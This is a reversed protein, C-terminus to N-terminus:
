NFGNVCALLLWTRSAADYMFGLVDTQGPATSLPPMPLDDTFAYADGWNLTASGTAGQTIQIIILQGDAPNAPNGMTRSAALTVRFDNGLSADVSITPADTLEVVAPAVGGSEIITAASAPAAFPETLVTGGVASAAVLGLGRGLVWRRSLASRTREAYVAASAVGSETTRIREDIDLEAM